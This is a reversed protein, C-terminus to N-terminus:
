MKAEVIILRNEQSEASIYTSVKFSSGTTSYAGPIYIYQVKFKEHLAMQSSVEILNWILIITDAWEDLTIFCQEGKLAQDIDWLVDSKNKRTGSLVCRDENM